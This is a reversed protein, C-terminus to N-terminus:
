LAEGRPRALAGPTDTSRAPWRHGQLPAGKQIEDWPVLDEFARLQERDPGCLVTAGGDGRVDMGPMVGARTKVPLGPHEVLVHPSGKNTRVHPGLELEEILARGKEGDFELDIIGSIAGSGNGLYRIKPLEPNGRADATSAGPAKGM